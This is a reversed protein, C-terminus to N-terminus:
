NTLRVSATLDPRVAEAIRPAEAEVPRVSIHPDGVDPLGSPFFDVHLRGGARAALVIAPRQNFAGLAHISGVAVIGAEDRRQHRVTVIHVAGDHTPIGIAALRDRAQDALIQEPIQARAPYEGQDAVALGAPVSHLKPKLRDLDAREALIGGTLDVDDVQLASGHVADHVARDRGAASLPARCRIITRAARGASASAM